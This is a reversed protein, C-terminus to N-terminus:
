STLQSQFETYPVQLRSPPALFLSGLLWNAVLLAAVTAWFAPRRWFPPASPPSSRPPSPPSPRPPAPPSPPDAM